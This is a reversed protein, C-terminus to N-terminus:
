ELCPVYKFCASKNFLQSAKSDFRLAELFLSFSCSVKPGCERSYALKTADHLQDGFEPALYVPTGLDIHHIKLQVPFSGPPNAFGKQRSVLKV